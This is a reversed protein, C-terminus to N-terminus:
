RATLGPLDAEARGRRPSMSQDLRDSLTIGGNVTKMTILMGGGNLRGEFHRKSEDKVEFHLGSITIGGNVWSAIVTAKASEPFAVRVGGNVTTLDVRANSDGGAQSALQVRVGGNVTRAEIGGNIQTAVVGGNTTQAIVRGDMATVTVGGNVTTARVTATRPAKVHYRVEVSAGILFGAIRKTEISVFDPTAHEEIPIRPLLQRALQETAGSAIREAEVELTSGDVGEVDVKGNINVITVEGTKSLPYTHTWTDSAKAQLPGIPVGCGSAAVAVIVGAALVMPVMPLALLSGRSWRQLGHVSM